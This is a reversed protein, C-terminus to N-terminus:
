LWRPKATHKSHSSSQRRTMSRTQPRATAHTDAKDTSKFAVSPKVVATDKSAASPRTTVGPKSSDSSKGCIALKAASANRAVSAVRTAASGKAGFPLKAKAATKDSGASKLAASRTVVRRNATQAIAAAKGAATSQSTSVPKVEPLVCREGSASGSRAAPVAAQAASVPQVATEATSVAKVHALRASRRVAPPAEPLGAMARSRVLYGSQAASAHRLDVTSPALASDTAVSAKRSVTCHSVAAESTATPVPAATQCSEVSCSGKSPKHHRRWAAAISNKLAGQLKVPRATVTCQLASAESTSISGSPSVPCGFAHTVVLDTLPLEDTVAEAQRSDYESASGDSVICMDTQTSDVSQQHRHWAAALSLKLSSSVRDAKVPVADAHSASPSASDSCAGSPTATGTNVVLGRLPFDCGLAEAQSHSSSSNHSAADPISPLRLRLRKIGPFTRRKVVCAPSDSSSGVPPTPETDPSCAGTNVVLGRLPFGGSEATQLVPIGSSYCGPSVPSTSGTNFVLGRLPFGVSGATQSSPIGSSYCSPSVHSTTGTNVVLGRLPFDHGEAETHQRSAMSSSSEPQAPLKLTLRKIGAFATQRTVLESHGTDSDAAVGSSLLASRDAAPISAARNSSNGTMKPTSPLRLRLKTIGPFATKRAAPPHNSTSTDAFLTLPQMPALTFLPRTVSGFRGRCSGTHPEVFSSISSSPTAVRRATFRPPAAATLPTGPPSNEKSSGPSVLHVPTGLGEKDALPQLMQKMTQASALDTLSPSFKNNSGIAVAQIPTISASALKNTIPQLMHQRFCAPITGAPAPSNVNGYDAAVKGLPTRSNM